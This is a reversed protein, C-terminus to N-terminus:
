NTRRIGWFIYKFKKRSAIYRRIIQHVPSIRSARGIDDLTPIKGSVAGIYYIGIDRKLPQSSYISKSSISDIEKIDSSYEYNAHGVGEYIKSQMPSGLLENLQMYSNLRENSSHGFLSNSAAIYELIRNHMSAIEIETVPRGLNEELIAIDDGAKVETGEKTVGDKYAFHGPRTEEQEGIFIMKNMSTLARRFGEKGDPFDSLDRYHEIDSIGVPFNMPLNYTGDENATIEDQYDRKTDNYEQMIRDFDARTIRKTVVGNILSFQENETIETDDVIQLAIKDVPLTGFNGGGLISAECMEPYYSSFNNAFTSSKSHGLPIVKNSMEVHAREEIIRRADELMAKIQPATKSIVDKDLQSVVSDFQENGYGPILPVIAPINSNISIMTSLANVGKEMRYYVRDLTKSKDEEIGKQVSTASRVIENDEFLSYIEELGELNETHGEPMEDEYDNLCDMMITNQPTNPIYVFYSYNFGKDPNAEVLVVKFGNKRGYTLDEKLEKKYDRM